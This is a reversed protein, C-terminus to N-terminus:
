DIYKHGVWVFRRNIYNPDTFSANGAPNGGTVHFDSFAANQNVFIGGTLNFAVPTFTNEMTEAVIAEFNANTTYCASSIAGHEKAMNAALALSEHSNATKVFLAIPGFLEKAFVAQNATQTSLLIPSATRANPFEPHAVTKSALVVSCNALNNAEEVRQYTAENQIAGLINIGMKPHDVIGTVAAAIAATVEDFSHHGAESTIGEAPIFFNQPATCMQGSYLCISFALNDAMAKLDKCSDIIVANVGAKETFVQKGFVQQTEIWNGFASNGTYDILAINPHQILEKTIPFKSSDAAMQCILPSYGAQALVTQVEAIVLAIPLVAKPHPKVIVPNGTILSAFMGPVTNWTPFTSCGIVLGVGRPVAKWTKRVQLNFKGMPKEWNVGEPFSKLAQYGMAIAELARDAAHPGSAQFSMTFAQGTTHMTAHAIEFFRAQMRELAEILIGARIQPTAKAWSSTNELANKVLIKDAFIPYRIGLGIQMYPSIEEGEFRLPQGQQLEMFDTNFRAQFAALGAAAAEDGYVKANEPYQAYYGRSNNAAIAKQLTQEHKEFFNM